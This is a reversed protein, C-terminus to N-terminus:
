KEYIESYIQVLIRSIQNDKHKEEPVSDFTIM